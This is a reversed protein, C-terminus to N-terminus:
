LGFSESDDFDLPDRLIKAGPPVDTSTIEVLESILELIPRGEVISGFDDDEFQRFTFGNTPAGNDGVLTITAEELEYRSSAESFSAAADNLGAYEAANVLRELYEKPSAPFDRMRVTVSVGSYALALAWIDTKLLPNM